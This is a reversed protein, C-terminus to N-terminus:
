KPPEIFSTNSIGKIKGNVMKYSGGIEMEGKWNGVDSMAGGTITKRGILRWVVRYNNELLFRSFEEKRVLLVGSDQSAMSPDYVVIEGKFNVFTGDGKNKLNMKEVLLKNPLRCTAEGDSSHDYESAQSAYMYTSTISRVPLNYPLAHSEIYSPDFHAPQGVARDWYLEGLFLNDFSPPKPFKGRHPSLDKSWNYLKSMNTKRTLRSELSFFISRRPLEYPEQDASVPQWLAVSGGLALWESGNDQNIEIFSEFNPLDQTNKLWQADDIPSDWTDYFSENKGYTRNSGPSNKTAEAPLLSPDINRLDFLQWPGDYISFTDIGDDDLFEFNDSVRALLEYYAIWQYKKGIRENSGSSRDLRYRASVQDYMEFREKSWGLAFVKKVIWRALALLDPIIDRRNQESLLEVCSSVHRDFIDRQNKNLRQRLEGKTSTGALYNQWYPRQDKKLNKAFQDLLRMRPLRNPLLRICSWQFSGSNGGIIYRYFDGMWGLSHFIQLAGKSETKSYTQELEDIETESPFIEIWDSSYPPSLKDPEIDLDIEKRMAYEIIRRAYDRLLINPPPKGDKFIASYTYQALEKLQDTDDSRMACGYAACFLREVVYPDNCGDFRQLVRVLIDIRASWLSVLAKTAKDRISRNSSTLFWALALSALYISEPRLSAENAHWAWDIYRKVISGNASYDQHLFISWSSDRDNMELKFLYGHLYDGNLLNNPDASITLLVKFLMGLCYKRRLIHEEILSLSSGTISDPRRWVLSDLFSRLAIDSGALRPEIEILEKKFKEPIQVSLADLMGRHQGGASFYEEFDGNTGFLTPLDKESKNKLQNQVIMHDALREYTFQVVHKSINSVPSMREESLLGESILNHILSRSHGTAPHIENLCSDAEQYELFRSNKSAMNEALVDVARRTIEEHESYDLMNSQSLKKDISDIFFGYVSTLGQLDNPIRTMNMNQLGSCLIILFQPNYFEPALLPISPREIGNNDFFMKIADDIKGEFGRHTIRSLKESGPDVPIVTSVYISRVSIAIGVWKYKSIANLIGHLYDPWIRHGDGENLADLMILSRSGNAQGAVDLAALLDDFTCDLELEKMITEKPNGGIFHGGHLLIGPHGLECRHKAVDCLLHTKGVGADGRILLAGTNAVLCSDRKACKKLKSLHGKLRRLHYIKNGFDNGSEKHLEELKAIIEHITKEAKESFEHIKSFDIPKEESESARRLIDTIVNVTSNLENFGSEAERITSRPVAYNTDKIIEKSIRSLESYFRQTRGLADFIKAIPLEVNLEPHYRLGANSVADDIHKEFWASSLFEKDFFYKHQGRHEDRSLRDEIESSGWYEFEINKDRQWKEVHQEWRCLFSTQGERKGDSRDVPLCVFYKTLRPRAKLAKKVSEDIQAWGAASPSELFYKAQWGWESGDQLTWYCEVGADPPALRVFTSNPPVKEHRALQCCLEEFSARKDIDSRLRDWDLLSLRM